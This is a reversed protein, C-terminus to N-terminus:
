GNGNGNKGIIHKKASSPGLLWNIHNMIPAELLKNLWQRHGGPMALCDCECGGSCGTPLAKTQISARTLKEM